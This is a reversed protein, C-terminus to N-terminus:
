YLYTLKYKLFVLNYYQFLIKWLHSVVPHLGHRVPQVSESSQDVVCPSMKGSIGGGFPQEGVLLHESAECLRAQRFKVVERQLGDDPFAKVIIIGKLPFSASCRGGFEGSANSCLLDQRLVVCQM